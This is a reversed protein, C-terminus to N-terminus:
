VQANKCILNWYLARVQEAIKDWNYREQIISRYNPTENASFSKGVKLSLEEVDGTKYFADRPLPVETNAPIDSAIIQLNNSMAELLVIPLGEHYSPLVFLKANQYIASLEDGTIFGTLVVGAQKANKELLGAYVNDVAGNGAVVLKMGKKNPIKEWAKILDDFGKEPVFRGCAFVYKGSELQYKDLYRKYDEIKTPLEVGNYILETKRCKYTKALHDQLFKSIVIVRDAFISGSLEGLRLFFKACLGWKGRKYDQGHHTYVVKAGTLKYLPAFFAPGIAHLHVIDPRNRMCLFFCGITHFLAEFFCRTGSSVPVIHIGNFDYPEKEKVYPKRVYITVDIGMAALRTYLKEVHTEIGGMINPIARCGVVAVKISDNM